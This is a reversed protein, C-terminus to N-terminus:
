SGLIWPKAEWFADKIIDCYDEKIVYKKPRRKARGKKVKPQSTESSHPQSTSETTTTESGDSPSAGGENTSPREGTEAATVTNNNFADEGQEHHTSSL